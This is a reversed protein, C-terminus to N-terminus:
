SPRSRPSRRGAALLDAAFLLVAVRDLALVRSHVSAVVAEEVALDDRDRKRRRSTRGLVVARPGARGDLDQGVSLGAKRSFPVTVAPLAHGRLSPAAATTTIDSRLALSSPMLGSARM